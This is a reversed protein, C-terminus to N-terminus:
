RNRKCVFIEGSEGSFHYSVTCLLLCLSGLTQKNEKSTKKIKIKNQKKLGKEMKYFNVWTFNFKLAHICKKVRDCDTKIEYGFCDTKEGDMITENNM